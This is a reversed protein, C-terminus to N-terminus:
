LFTNEEEEDEINNSMKEADGASSMKMMAIRDRFKKEFDIKEEEVELVGACKLKIFEKLSLWDNESEIFFSFAMSPNLASWSLQLPSTQSIQMASFCSIIPSLAPPPHCTLPPSPPSCIQLSAQPSLSSVHSPSDLASFSSSSPSDNRLDKESTEAKDDTADITTTHTHTDTVNLNSLLPTEIVSSQANKDECNAMEVTSSVPERCVDEFSNSKTLSISAISSIGKRKLLSTRSQQCNEANQKKKEQSTRPSNSSASDNVKSMLMQSLTNRVDLMAAPVAVHPDLFYLGNEGAAIFYHASSTAGGGLLGCFSPLSFISLISPKVADVRLRDLSLRTSVLVLLGKRTTTSKPTMKMESLSRLETAIENSYLIGEDFFISRGIGCDWLVCRGCNEDSCNSHDDEVTMVRNVLNNLAQAGSTPGFWLGPTRGFRHGEEVFAHLSFPAKPTDEFLSLICGVGRGIEPFPLRSALISGLYPPATPSSRHSCLLSALTNALCMQSVRIMCGWGNDSSILPLKTNGTSIPEFDRRYTLQIRSAYDLVFDSREAEDDLDYMRGLLHIKGTGSRWKFPLLNTFITKISSVTNQFSYSLLSPNRELSANTSGASIQHSIQSM